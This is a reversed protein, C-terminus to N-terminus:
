VIQNANEDLYVPSEFTQNTWCKPCTILVTATKEPDSKEKLVRKEQKCQPCRLLVYSTVHTEPDFGCAKDVMM